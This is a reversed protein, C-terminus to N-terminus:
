PKTIYSLWHMMSMSEPCPHLLLRHSLEVGRYPPRVQSSKFAPPQEM